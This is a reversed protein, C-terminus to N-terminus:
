YDKAGRVAPAECTSKRTHRTSSAGAFAIEGQFPLPV